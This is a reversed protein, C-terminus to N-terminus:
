AVRPCAGPDDEEDESEVHYLQHGLSNDLPEEEEARRSHVRREVWEPVVSLREIRVLQDAESYRKLLDVVQWPWGTFLLSM